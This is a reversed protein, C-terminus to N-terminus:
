TSDYIIKLNLIYYWCCVAELDMEESFTKSIYKYILKNTHMQTHWHTHTYIYTLM